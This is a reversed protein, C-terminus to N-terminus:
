VQKVYPNKSFEQKLKRLRTAISSDFLKDGVRLTFGGILSPDIREVLEFSTKLEEEVVKKISAKQAASLPMPSVLEGRTINKHTDYQFLFRNAVDALFGERHKNVLINIFLATIEHVNSFVQKLVDKKKDPLIIPNKLMRVFDPSSACVSEISRFDQWVQELVGREIALDLISKAYRDGLKVEIM